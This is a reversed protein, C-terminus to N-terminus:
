RLMCKDQYSFDALGSHRKYVFNIIYFMYESSIVNKYDWEVPYKRQLYLVTSQNYFSVRHMMGKQSALLQKAIWSIGV